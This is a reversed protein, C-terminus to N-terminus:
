VELKRLVIAAALTGRERGRTYRHSYYREPMCYTCEGSIDINEARLGLTVLRHANAARLDIHFKGNERLTYFRRGAEGLWKDIAEPVDADSEFCCQGIAPGLAAYINDSIAGLSCMAEVANSLIDGASSRWGCHIAGVVRRDGDCMLVPVCDATFCILPMDPVATVIGDAKYPVKSLCMHRDAEGVIRVVNGHVQNTVACDDIGAGMLECLRRYNERVAHPKDGRSTSLNMSSFAGRSVGGLRTTFLHRAPLLDSVTCIIENHRIDQFM